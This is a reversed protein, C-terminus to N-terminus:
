STQCGSQSYDPSDAKGSKRQSNPFCFRAMSLRSHRVYGSDPNAVDRVTMGSTLAAAFVDLRKSVGEKGAMQAGPLRCNIKEAVLKVKIQTVGPSNHAECILAYKRSRRHLTSAGTHCLIPM